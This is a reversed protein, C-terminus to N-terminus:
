HDLPAPAANRDTWSIVQVVDDRAMPSDARVLGSGGTRLRVGVYRGSLIAEILDIAETLLADLGRQHWDALEASGPGLGVIIYGLASDTQVILGKADCHPSPVEVLLDYGDYPEADPWPGPNFLHARRLWEPHARFLRQSFERAFPTLKSLRFVSADDPMSPM